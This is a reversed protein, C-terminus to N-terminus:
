QVETKWANSELRADSRGNASGSPGDSPAPVLSRAQKTEYFRRSAVIMGTMYFYHPYYLVSLFTGSTFYGMLSALFALGLYHAFRTEDDGEANWRKLWVIDRLNYFLLLGYILVGFIGLEPLLTFYLSHAARGWMNKRMSEPQYLPFLFGFNAGGVGLPHDKFMAWGAEWSDLRQKATGENTATSTEIRTWYKESATFYVVGCFLAVFALALVKRPSFLWFCIVVAVLGLFGGRSFSALVSAVALGSAALYYIRKRLNREYLAFSIGFPIMMNMLLSFDNEDGLFNSGGIGKNIIGRIALYLMLLVWFGFLKRLRDFTNVFLIVAIFFPMYKLVTIMVLYAWHNNVAIPVFVALLFIFLWMVKTQRGTFVPPKGTSLCALILLVIIVAGPYIARLFTLDDMPRGYEFLLYVLVLVFGVQGKSGSDEQTKNIQM